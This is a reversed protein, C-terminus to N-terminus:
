REEQTHVTHLTALAAELAVRVIGSYLVAGQGNVARVAAKVMDDTVATAEARVEADHAALWRDFQAASAGPGASSGAFTYVERVRDTTPTYDTM